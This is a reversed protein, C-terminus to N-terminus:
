QSQSTHRQMHVYSDSIELYICIEPKAVLIMKDCQFRGYSCEGIFRGVRRRNSLSNFHSVYQHTSMGQEFDNM